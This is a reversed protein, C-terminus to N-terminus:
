NPNSNSDIIPKPNSNIFDEIGEIVGQIAFHQKNKYKDVDGKELYWEAAEILEKCNGPNDIEEIMNKKKQKDQNSINSYKEGKEYFDKLDFSLRLYNRDSGVQMTMM